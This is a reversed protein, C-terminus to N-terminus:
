QGPTRQTTVTNVLATLTDAQRALQARQQPSPLQAGTLIGLITTELAYLETPVSDSLVVLGGIMVLIILFAVGLIVEHFSPPASLV